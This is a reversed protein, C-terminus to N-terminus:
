LSIATSLINDRLFPIVALPGQAMIVGSIPEEWPNGDLGISEVQYLYGFEAPLMSLKNNFLLFEVLNTLKGIEPPLFTLHNDSLDLIVLTRLEGVQAPLGTLLNNNLRLETLFDTYNMLGLPLFRIQANSLDLGVLDNEELSTDIQVDQRTSSTASQAWVRPPRDPTQAIPPHSIPPRGPTGVTQIPIPQPSTMRPTEPSTAGKRVVM